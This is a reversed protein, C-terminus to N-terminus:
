ADNRKKRDGKNWTEQGLDRAKEWDNASGWAEMIECAVCEHDTAAIAQPERIRLTCPLICNPKCTDNEAVQGDPGM